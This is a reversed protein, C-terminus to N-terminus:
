RAAATEAPAGTKKLAAADLVWRRFIQYGRDDPNYRRGGQHGDEQGTQVNLPKRLLKSNEVDAENVRELLVKYNNWVAKPTIYGSNEAPQFEMSPVRGPVGHCSMCAFEDDRNPRLLEPTVWDRFYEFNRRWEGALKKAEEVDPQYLGPQVSQMAAKVVPHNRVIANQAAASIAAGRIRGDVKKTVAEAVIRAARERAAAHPDAAAAAPRVEPV